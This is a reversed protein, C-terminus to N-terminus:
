RKTAVVIFFNIQVGWFNDQCRCVVINDFLPDFTNVVDQEDNFSRFIYGNRLGYIDNTIVVHGDPLRLCDKLIFNDPAPLSAILVGNKNLVRAMEMLNDNFSTGKDVYYCSHCALLYDFFNEDFPIHTNSGKKVTAEIGLEGLTEKALDIIDDSIEVGYIDFDCNSLLPFNRCDGFGLDLLKANKYNGKNLHLDPYKGLMTRIVWETPYVHRTKKTKHFESYTKRVNEM